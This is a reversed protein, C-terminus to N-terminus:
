GHRGIWNAYFGAVLVMLSAEGLSLAERQREAPQRRWASRELQAFVFAFGIAPWSYKAFDKLTAALSIWDGAVCAGIVIGTGALWGGVRIGVAADRDITIRDAADSSWAVLFWLLFLSATALATCFLVAQFGPGDGISAGAVCCTAAITLGVSAFGAANNGREAVDDRLSVGFYAFASQAFVVFFFFFVLYFSIEGADDRVSPSSWARLAFYIASVCAFMFVLWVATRM